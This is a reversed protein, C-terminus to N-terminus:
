LYKKPSNARRRKYLVYATVLLAQTGVIIFILKGHGPISSTVTHSLLTHHQGLYRHLDDQHSSLKNHIEDRLSRVESELERIRHQLDDNRSSHSLQERLQDLAHKIDAQDDDSKKKHQLNTRHVANLLHTASQLREHLDQFQASSTKY